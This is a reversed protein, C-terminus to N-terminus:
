PIAPITTVPRIQGRIEGGPNRRTHVNVYANEQRMLVLLSDLSIGLKISDAVFTSNALTGSFNPGTPASPIFLNVAVPGAVSASGTHIHAATVSDISSVTLLFRVSRGNSEFYAAGGAPTSVPTPRENAGSLKAEYKEPPPSGGPVVAHGRVAGNPFQRTALVVYANGNDLLTKVSDLTVGPVEIDSADFSALRLNGSGTLSGAADDYLTVLIPGNVATGGVHLTARTVNEINEVVIQYEVRRSFLSFAVTAATPRENFSPSIPQPRINGGLLIAFRFDPEESEPGLNTCGFLLIASLLCRSRLLSM